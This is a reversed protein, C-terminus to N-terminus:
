LPVQTTTALYTGRWAESLLRARYCEIVRLAVSSPSCSQLAAPECRACLRSVQRVSLELQMTAQRQTLRCELM